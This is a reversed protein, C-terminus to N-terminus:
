CFSPVNKEVTFLISPQAETRQSKTQKSKRFFLDGAFVEHRMRKCDLSSKQWQHRRAIRKKGMGGRKHRYHGKWEGWRKFGRKKRTMKKNIKGWWQEFKKLLSKTTGVQLLVASEVVFNVLKSVKMRSHTLLHPASGTHMAWPVRIFSRLTVTFIM